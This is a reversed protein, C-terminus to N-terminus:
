FPIQLYKYPNPEQNPRTKLLRLNWMYQTPYPSVMNELAEALLTADLQQDGTPLADIPPHIHIEFKGTTANYVPMMPLITASTIRAIKGLGSFTAKKTAFFDTFQSQEPGFDEDPLYYGLYGEKIAKIYPKLGEQRTYCAGGYQLRQKSILWDYIPQRHQPKIMGVIPLNVSALYIAPFDIAWCHPVLLIIKKDQELLRNLHNEGFVQTRKQLHRRSKLSLEGMGLVVQAAVAFMDDIMTERDAPTQEPFCLTLNVQARQRAKKAIRGIQRGLFAAIPDRVQWPLLAFLLLFGTALWTGWHKPHLFHWQFQPDYGSPPRPDLVRLPIM